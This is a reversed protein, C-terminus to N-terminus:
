DWCTCREAGTHLARSIQPESVAERICAIIDETYRLQKAATLAKQRYTTLSAQEQAIQRKNKFQM